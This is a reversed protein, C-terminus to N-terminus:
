LIARPKIDFVLKLATICNSPVHCTEDSSVIGTLKEGETTHPVARDPLSFWNVRGDNNLYTSNLTGAVSTIDYPVENQVAWDEVFRAARTNEPQNGLFTSFVRLRQKLKIAEVRIPQPPWSQLLLRNAELGADTPIVFELQNDLHRADQRFQHGETMGEIQVNLHGHNIGTRFDLTNSVTTGFVTSTTGALNPAHENHTTRGTINGDEPEGVLECTAGVLEIDCLSLDNTTIFEQGQHTVWLTMLQSRRTQTRDMLGSGELTRHSMTDSKLTYTKVISDSIFIALDSLVGLFFAGVAL